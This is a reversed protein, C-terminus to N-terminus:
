RETIDEVVVCKRPGPVGLPPTSRYLIILFVVRVRCYLQIHFALVANCLGSHATNIQVFFCELYAVFDTFTTSM